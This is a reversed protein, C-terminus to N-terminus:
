YDFLCYKPQVVEKVGRFTKFFEKQNEYVKKFLPDEDAYKECYKKGLRAIEEQFELSLTVIETGYEKYKEM